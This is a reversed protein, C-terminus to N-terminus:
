IVYEGTLEKFAARMDKWTDPHANSLYTTKKAGDAFVIDIQSQMGDLSGNDYLRNWHTFGYEDASKRFAKIKGPSLKKGHYAPEYIELIEDPPM